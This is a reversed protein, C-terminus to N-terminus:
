RTGERAVRTQPLLAFCTPPTGAARKGLSVRLLDLRKRHRSAADAMEKREWRINAVALAQDTAPRVYQDLFRQPRLQQPIQTLESIQSTRQFLFHRAPNELMDVIGRPCCNPNRCGFMAKARSGAELLARAQDPKLLMDVGPLYVRRALGFGDDNDRQKKWAKTSRHEGFTVGHSLGGAAGFALLSLGVLGGVTDAIVPIALRHLEAAADLFNLTATPTSRSGFSEVALWLSAVPARQIATVIASLEDRNRLAAYPIALPYILPIRTGNRRDLGGRLHRANDVDIALWPDNAGSLIHTPAMVQTYGNDLAFTAIEGVRRRGAADIFDAPSHPRDGGWPLKGLAGSYGGETALPQTRPDLVADQNQALTRELLEKHLHQVSPDFIVGHFAADGTAAFELLPKHDNRGPRLDLALPDPLPRITRPFHAFPAVNGLM